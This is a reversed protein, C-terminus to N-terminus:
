TPDSTREDLVAATDDYAERNRLCRSRRGEGVSEDAPTESDCVSGLAERLHASAEADRGEVALETARDVAARPGDPLALGDFLDARVTEASDDTKFGLQRAVVATVSDDGRARERLLARFEDVAAWTSESLDVGLGAVSCPRSRVTM